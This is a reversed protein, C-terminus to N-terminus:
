NNRVSYQPQGVGEEILPLIVDYKIKIRTSNVQSTLKFREFKCTKRHSLVQGSDSIDVCTCSFAIITKTFM